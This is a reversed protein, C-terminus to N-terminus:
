GPQGTARREHETMNIVCVCVCLHQLPIDWEIQIKQENVIYVYM